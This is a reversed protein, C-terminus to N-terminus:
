VGSPRKMIFYNPRNPRARYKKAREQLYAPAEEDSIRQFGFRGYLKELHPYDYPICFCEREGIEESLLELLRMGIGQKQHNERVRMGRLIVIGEEECLRVIGIIQHRDKALFIRDDRRVDDIAGYKTDRYFYLIEEFNKGNWLEIKIDM